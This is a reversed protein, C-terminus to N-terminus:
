VKWKEDLIGLRGGDLPGRSTDGIAGAGERGMGRLEVM